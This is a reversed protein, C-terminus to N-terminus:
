PRLVARCGVCLFFHDLASWQNITSESMRQIIFSCIVHRLMIYCTIREIHDSLVYMQWISVGNPM